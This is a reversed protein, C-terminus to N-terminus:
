LQDRGLVDKLIDIMADVDQREAVLAPAFIIADGTTKV